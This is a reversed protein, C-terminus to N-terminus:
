LVKEKDRKKIKQTIEDFADFIVKLSFDTDMIKIAINPDCFSPYERYAYMEYEMPDYIRDLCGVYYENLEDQEQPDWSGKSLDRIADGLAKETAQKDFVEVKQTSSIQAKELWYMDSVPDGGPYFERCFVWNGYDGTVTLVGCANIFIVQQTITNPKKFKYIVVGDNRIIELKHDKFDVGSRKGIM